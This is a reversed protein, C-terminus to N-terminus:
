VVFHNQTKPIHKTSKNRVNSDSSQSYLTHLAKCHNPVKMHIASLTVSGLLQFYVKFSSIHKPFYAKFYNPLKMYTPPLTVSALWQLICKPFIRKKKRELVAKSFYLKSFYVKSFYAKSFVTQFLWSAEYIRSGLRRLIYKPSVLKSFYVKSFYTKSFYLKCYNPLKMYAPSLTVNGLRQWRSNPTSRSRESVAAAFCLLWVFFLCLLERVITRCEDGRCEDGWVNM